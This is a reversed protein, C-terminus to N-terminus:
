VAVSERRMKLQALTADALELDTRRGLYVPQYLSGGDYAYLYRVEVLAGPEPVVHNAPITVNGIDVAHEGDYVRMAVSRRGDNQGVVEVTASEVFKFKRAPGGSNPRGASYPARADRLVIGETNADRLKELLARKNVITHPVVRIQPADECRASIDDAVANLRDLFGHGTLDEGAYAQADFVYLTDGILEGDLTSAHPLAALAQALAGPLAVILGRRNVGAIAGDPGILIVCRVGDMKELAVVNPDDLLRELEEGDVDNLLQIPVNARQGDRDSIAALTAAPADGDTRYGKSVKENV